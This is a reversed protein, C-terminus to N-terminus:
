PCPKDSDPTPSLTGGASCATSFNLRIRGVGGGGGGGGGGANENTGNDGREAAGAKAGGVGGNGGATSNNGGNPTREGGDTRGDLGPAGATDAVLGANSNGEGGSGGNATILGTLTLRDAELLLGGGSGGGGGGSRANDGPAGRGGGGAASLRGSVTLQGAVSLQLAGGGGGGEGGNDGGRGGGCGGRLPVLVANGNVGGLTGGQAGNSSNGGVNGAGGFGGGGGGAGIAGLGGNSNGPGGTGCLNSRGGGPGSVQGEANAEVAGALEADGYVAVIVPNAGTFRLRGAPTVTLRTVPLVVHQIGGDTQTVRLPRPGPRGCWQLATAPPNTSDFDVSCDVTVAASPAPVAAVSFNSPEYPFPSGCVAGARCVGGDGCPTGAPRATMTCGPGDGCAATLCPNAPAPCEVPAGACTADAQCRDESTCAKGDDCPTGAPLASYQCGTAPMCAGPSGHCATPKDCTVPSAGGCHGEGDCTEGATCENGDSCKVGAMKLPYECAGTAPACQGAFRCIPPAPCTVASTSGGCSKNSCVEGLTCYDFDECAKGDCDPDACDVLTDGDNDDGDLCIEREAMTCHGEVCTGGEGCRQGACNPDKCDRVGDRDNDAGDSCLQETCAGAACLAGAGCAQDACPADQCDTLRNCDNDVGDACAEAVGPNVQAQVDDCDGGGQKGDRYGDGDADYWPPVPSVSLSVKAIGSAPFTADQAESEENLLACGPGVFGRARLHVTQPMASTKFVAAVLEEDGTRTMAGTSLMAMGEGTVELKFCTSRVAAPASISVSLAPPSRKGCASLGAAALAATVCAALLGPSLRRM